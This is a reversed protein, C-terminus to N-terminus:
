HRARCRRRGAGGGPAPARPRAARRGSRRRAARGRRGSSGCRPSGRVPRDHQQLPRGEREVGCSSGLAPVTSPRRSDGVLVQRAVHLRRRCAAASRRASRARRRARRRCSADLRAHAHAALQGVALAQVALAAADRRGRQRLPIAVVDTRPRLLADVVEGHGERARGSVDLLRARQHALGAALRADDGLDLTVLRDVVQALMM